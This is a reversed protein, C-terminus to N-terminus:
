GNVSRLRIVETQDTCAKILEKMNKDLVPHTFEPAIEALPELVFSRNAIHPHPIILLESNIIMDGYFLIDIDITRSIYGSGHARTRGLRQEIELCKSLIEEPALNSAVEIAMNLFNDISEFGWPETEYVSSLKVIQGIEDAILQIAKQLNNNRDGINSGLSIFLDM